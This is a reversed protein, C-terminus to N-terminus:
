IILSSTVTYSQKDYILFVYVYSQMNVTQLFCMSCATVKNVFSVLELIVTQLDLLNLM